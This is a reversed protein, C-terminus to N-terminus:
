PGVTGGQGDFLRTWQCNFATAQTLDWTIASRIGPMCRIEDLVLEHMRWRSSTAAGVILDYIGAVMTVTVIEPAEALVNAIRRAAGPEAQIGIFSWTDVEGTLSPDSRAKIRLLGAQEMRRLRARVTGESISLQRAVERNSQRGDAILCDILMRDNTDLETVPDPFSLPAPRIPIRAYRTEHKLTQLIVSHQISKVGRIAGVQETIVDVASSGDPLLLLAM